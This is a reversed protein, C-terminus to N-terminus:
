ELTINNEKIVGGWFEQDWDLQAQMADPGGVHPTM